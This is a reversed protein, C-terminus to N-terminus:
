TKKPKAKKKKPITKPAKEAKVVEAVLDQKGPAEVERGGLVGNLLFQGVAIMVDIVGHEEFHTKFNEPAIAPEAVCNLVEILEVMKISGSQVKNVLKGLPMELDTEIKALTEFSPILKYTAKNLTLSVEGRTTNAVSIM